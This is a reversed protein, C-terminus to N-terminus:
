AAKVPPMPEYVTEGKLMAWVIRANKNALAVAAVNPHRRARLKGLWRSRPGQKGAAKGLAARAGHIMLTRLYRDGRKSIGLLRARGGSSRQKPVLGLWAAFQRGNKFCTRDGVAAILATATLPGIGEIKGLQQCQDNSRFIERIRRDYTAIRRDLEVLEAQLERMLARVMDSLGDNDNGVIVALGRRLQTIDRAIVIGHESLLGRAQNVLRVRDAVLRRRVRHVAQIALQDISKPPVFRMSPRSVAECIAEADNRDNKNSKVYPTVFQPSILRVEHGLDSLVRAWYHAGNSAEMGVLCQPLNVFFRAVADRRLTKRLVVKGHCDVGYVDFVYKALDLGIRVVQM